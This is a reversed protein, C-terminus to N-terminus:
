DTLSKKEFVIKHRSYNVVVTIVVLCGLVLPLIIISTSSGVGLTSDGTDPVAISGLTFTATATGGDGFVVKLIHAGDDLDYLYDDNIMIITNDSGSVTYYDVGVLADDIYLEGGLKFLAVDADIEFEIEDNDISVKQGDGKIVKYVIKEATAVLTTDEKINKITIKNGIMEKIKEIQNVLVSTLVYGHKAEISVSQDAGRSVKFVGEPNTIVNNGVIKFTYQEAVYVVKISVDKNSAVFHLTNNTLSSTVDVGDKLVKLLNYGEAAVFKIEVDDGELVNELPGGNYGGGGEVQVAVNILNLGYVPVEVNITTYHETDNNYTYTARYTHQGVEVTENSNVWNFGVTRGGLDSLKSGKVIRLNALMEPPEPSIVKDNDKTVQVTATLVFDEDDHSANIASVRVPLTYTGITLGTNMKYKASIIPTGAAVNVGELNLDTWYIVGTNADKVSPSIGNALTIEDLTLGTGNEETKPLYVTMGYYNSVQSSTITITVDLDEGIKVVGDSISYDAISNWDITERGSYEKAILLADTSNILGNKNVDAVIKQMESLTSDDVVYGGIKLADTTNVIGNLDVDGALIIYAKVNEADSLKYKYKNHVGTSEAVIRNFTLGNNITEIVICPENSTVYVIEGDTTYTAVGNTKNQVLDDRIFVGYNDCHKRSTCFVAESFDVFGFGYYDDKGPTGLDIAKTKLVDIADSLGLNKNFSKITAVAASMFPAAASTGSEIRVAGTSANLGAINVGPAVFDVYANHTSFSAIRLDADVAGVSMTSALGSPYNVRGDGDNGSAAVMVIGEQMISNCLDGLIEELLENDSGFSMNIVDAGEYRARYLATIVDAANNKGNADAVKLVMIDVNSSTSEALISTVYTGHGTPDEGSACEVVCILEVNRGPYNSRIVGTALGTDLVAVKVNNPLSMTDIVQIADDLGMAGVGWSSYSDFYYSAENKKVIIDDDQELQAYAEDREEITDYYMFFMNEPAEITKVAGYDNPKAMSMVLLINEPDNNPNNRMEDYEEFFKNMFEDSSIQGDVPSIEANGDKSRGFYNAVSFATILLVLSLVLHIYKRRVM